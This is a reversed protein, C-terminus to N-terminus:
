KQTKKNELTLFVGALVPLDLYYSSQEIPQLRYMENGISEEGRYNVSNWKIIQNGIMGFEPNQHDIRHNDEHALQKLFLALPQTVGTYDDLLHITRTKRDYFVSDNKSAIVDGATGYTTASADLILKALDIIEKKSLQEFNQVMDLIQQNSLIIDIYREVREGTVFNANRMEIIDSMKKIYKSVLHTKAIPNFTPIKSIKEEFERELKAIETDFTSYNAYPIHPMKLLKEYTEAFDPYKSKYEDKNSKYMDVTIKNIGYKTMLAILKNRVHFNDNIEDWTHWNKVTKQMQKINGNFMSKFDQWTHNRNGYKKYADFFVKDDDSMKDVNMILNLTPLQNFVSRRVKKLVQQTAIDFDQKKM